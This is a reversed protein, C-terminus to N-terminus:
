IILDSYETENPLLNWSIHRFDRLSNSGKYVTKDQPM